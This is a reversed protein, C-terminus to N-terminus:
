RRYVFYGNGKADLIESIKSLTNKQLTVRGRNDLEGKRVRLLLYAADEAIEGRRSVNSFRVWQEVQRGRNSYYGLRVRQYDTGVMEGQQVNNIIWGAADLIYLKSSPSSKLGAIVMLCIFFVLAGFVLRNKGTTELVKKRQLEAISYVVVILLLIAAMMTYRSVMVFNLLAHALLILANISVFTGIIPVADANMGAAPFQRRFIWVLFYALSMSEMLDIIISFALSLYISYVAGDASFRPFVFKRLLEAKQPVVNALVNGLEGSALFVDGLKNQFPDSFLTLVTLSVGALALPLYTKASRYLRERWNLSRNLLMGLPALCAIVLGEVRFLTALGMSLTWGAVSWWSFDRYLKVYFLFAVMSFAWYGHGRIIEERNEILYPVSLIVVAAWFLVRTGGAFLEVARIFAYVLLADLVINVLHAATELGMGGIDSVFLILYSYFLWNHLQKESAVDGLAAQLYFVADHNILDAGQIRWVSFLISLAVALFILYRRNLGTDLSSFWAKM